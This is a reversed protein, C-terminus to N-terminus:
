GGLIGYNSLVKIYEKSGEQALTTGFFIRFSKGKVYQYIHSKPNSWLGLMMQKVLSVYQFPLHRDAKIKVIIEKDKADKLYDALFYDLSAARKQLLQNANKADGTIEELETIPTFNGGVGKFAVVGKGNGVYSIALEIEKTNKDIVDNVVSEQLEVDKPIANPDDSVNVMLFLLIITLCDLLSTISLQAKDKKRRRVPSM